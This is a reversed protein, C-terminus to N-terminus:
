PDFTMVVHGDKALTQAAYWYHQEAVQVSGNTIVIGPGRAPGAKTARVHGSLAAGGACGDEGTACLNAM